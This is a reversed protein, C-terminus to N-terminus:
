AAKRLDLRFVEGAPEAGLRRYLPGMRPGSGRPGARMFVESIGRERLASIAARQLKMGLGPITAYFTLGTASLMDQEELSPCIMMMLYGFMRGNSRGTTIQMMGRDAMERMLSLNKFRHADPSEGVQILHEEFLARGDRYFDDFPEQQITVGEMESPVSRSMEAITEHKAILALKSLLPEFARYYRMLAAMNTQLNLPAMLRWWEPNHTYPLCHEFVERCAGEDELDRFRVSLVGPVRREIQDLKRAMKEIIGSVKSRDFESFRSLSNVVDDVPRRVVVFRFDRPVLRWWPAAATECTGSFTLDFWTRVDDMSRAHRLEDHSCTWDGYTLFRSLWFTRSRPLGHVIFGSM